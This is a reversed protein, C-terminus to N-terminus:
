RTAASKRGHFAIGTGERGIPGRRLRRFLLLFAGAPLLLLGPSPSAGPPLSCGGGGGGGSGPPVYGWTTYSHVVLPGRDLGDDASLGIEYVGAVDPTFSLPSTGTDAITAASGAPRSVLLWRPIPSQSPDGDSLVAYFAVPRGVNDASPVSFSATPLHNARITATASGAPTSAPSSQSVGLRVTYDGPLDPTFSATPGDVGSLAASSGAPASLISWARSLSNDGFAASSKESTLLVATGPLSSRPATVAAVSERVARLANAKGYGWTTDPVAGQLDATRRLRERMQAGTLSPNSEWALAAIGAVHPAAMSTGDLSAYASNTALAVLGSQSSRASYIFEGPAALDPKLRGDRTPGLSSFTSIPNSPVPAGGSTKTMCSAVAIVNDGNAPEQLTGETSASGVAFYGAPLSVWADVKGDDGNRLRDLRISANGASTFTVTIYNAGNSPFATRNTVSVTGRPSTANTGDAATAVEDIGQSATVRYRDQARAWIEVHANGNSVLAATATGFPPLDAHFHEGNGRENGAAVTVLHRSAATWTALRNVPEEFSDTGDHSGSVGGLSLNVVAPRNAGDAYGFLDSMASLIDSDFFDNVGARGIMLSSEPAIGTYLGGSSNGNGAAIGAVHTGHGYTDALPSLAGPSPSYVSHVVRTAPPSGAKFDLHGGDLGTDVIGVLVGKGTFGTGNPLGTGAQVLDASVAPRSLDLSPRLRRAARLYSLTPWSSASRVAGLPIRGVWTDSTIRSAEGGLLRVREPLEPDEGGLRFIVPVKLEATPEAGFHHRLVGAPLANSGTRLLPDVKRDDPRIPVGSLSALGVLAVLLLLLRTGPKRHTAANM